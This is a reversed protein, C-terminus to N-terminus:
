PDHIWDIFFYLFLIKCEMFWLFLVLNRESRNDYMWFNPLAPTGQNSLLNIIWHQWQQPEPWRQPTPEIGPRPVEAHQPHPWFFMLYLLVTYHFTWHVQLPLSSSELEKSKALKRQFHLKEPRLKRLSIVYMIQFLDGEQGVLIDPTPLLLHVEHFYCIKKKKKKKDKSSKPGCQRM